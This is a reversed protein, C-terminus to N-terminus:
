VTRFKLKAGSFFQAAANPDTLDVGVKRADDIDGILEFRGDYREGDPMRTGRLRRALRLNDEYMNRADTLDANVLSAGQFQAHHLEAGSFDVEYFIGSLRANSLNAASLHGGSFTGRLRAFGLQAASFDVRIFTGDLLAGFLDERQLGVETFQGECQAYRLFEGNPFTQPDYNDRLVAVRQGNPLRAHGMRVAGTLQVSDVTAGFLDAGSLDAGSLDAGSLDAGSLDAGSLNAGSLDAGSLNAGRLTAASLDANALSSRYLDAKTLDVGRLNATDLRAGGFHSRALYAGRMTASNLDADELIADSLVAARLDAGPLTARALNAGTLNAGRLNAKDLKAGYLQTHRLTAAGLDAGQMNAEVLHEGSLDSGRLDANHLSEKTGSIAALHKRRRIPEGISESPAQLALELDRRTSRDEVAILNATAGAWRVGDIRCGQLDADRLDAGRLDADRLDADRLDVNELAAGRMHAARLDAGRLDVHELVAGTFDIGRLDSGHLKVCRLLAYRLKSGRLTVHRADCSVWVSHSLDCALFQGGVIDVAKCILGTARVGTWRADLLAMSEFMGDIIQGAAINLSLECCESKAPPRDQTISFNDNTVDRVVAERTNPRLHYISRQAAILTQFHMRQRDGQLWIIPEVITAMTFTMDIGFSNAVLGTLIEMYSLYSLRLLIDWAECGTAWELVQRIHPMEPQLGDRFAQIFAANTRDVPQGPARRLDLRAALATELDQTMDLCYRALLTYATQRVYDERQGFRQQAFERVLQNVRFRNGGAHHILGRSQMVSLAQRVEPPRRLAVAALTVDQWDGEGLVGVLEFLRVQEDTLERIAIELGNSVASNLLTHQREGHRLMQAYTSPFIKNAAFDRAAMSLLHPLYELHRSIEPLTDQYMAAKEEGMHHRFLQLAEAENMRGLLHTTASLPPDLLATLSIALVRCEGIHQSDMPLLDALQHTNKVNDFVILLDRRAVMRWFLERLYSISGPAHHYWGNDLASLFSLLLDEPNLNDLNGWLVGHRFHGDAELKRVVHAALVSKGAGSMGHLVTLQDHALLAQGLLNEADQREVYEPISQPTQRPATRGPWEEDPGPEDDPGNEVPHGCILLAAKIRQIASRAAKIDAVIYPPVDVMGHQALQGLRLALRDRHSVLQACQSDIEEQSCM